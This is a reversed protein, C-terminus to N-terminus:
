SDLNTCPFYSVSYRVRQDCQIPDFVGQISKTNGYDHTSHPNGRDATCCEHRSDDGCSCRADETQKECVQGRRECGLETPGRWFAHAGCTVATGARRAIELDFYSSTTLSACSSLPLRGLAVWDTPTVAFPALVHTALAWL